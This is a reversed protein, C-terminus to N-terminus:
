VEFHKKLEVLSKEVDDLVVYDANMEDIILQIEYSRERMFQRLEYLYDNAKDM